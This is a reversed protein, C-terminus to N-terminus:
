LNELLYDDFNNIEIKEINNSKIILKNDNEIQIDVCSDKQKFQEIIKYKKDIDFNIFSYKWVDRIASTINEFNYNSIFLMFYEFIHKDDEETFKITSLKKLYADQIVYLYSYFKKLYIKFFNGEILAYIKKKQKEEEILKHTKIIFIESHEKAKLEDELKKIFQDCEIIKTSKMENYDINDEYHEMRKIMLTVFKKYLTFIYLEDNEWTIPSTNKIELKSGIKAKYFFNAADRREEFTAKAWDKSLITNLFLLLTEMSSNEKKGFGIFDKNFQEPPFHHIYSMIQIVPNDEKDTKKRIQKVLLLYQRVIERETNDVKLIDKYLKYKKENDKTVEISMLIQRILKKKNKILNLEQM